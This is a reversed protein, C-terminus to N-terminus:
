LTALEWADTLRRLELARARAQARVGGLRHEAAQTALRNRAMEGGRGPGGTDVPPDGAVGSADAEGALAPDSPVGQTAAADHSAGAITLRLHGGFGPM